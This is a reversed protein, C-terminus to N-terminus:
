KWDCVENEMMTVLDEKPEEEPEPDEKPIPVYFPKRRLDTVVLLCPFAQKCEWSFGDDFGLWIRLGNQLHRLGIVLAQTPEIHETEWTREEEQQGGPSTDRHLKKVLKQTVTIEQGLTFSM